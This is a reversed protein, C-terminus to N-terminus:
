EDAPRKFDLPSPITGPAIGAYSPLPSWNGDKQRYIYGLGARMVAANENEAMFDTVPIESAILEPKRADRNYPNHRLFEAILWALAQLSAPKTIVQPGPQAAYFGKGILKVAVPLTAIPPIPIERVDKAQMKTGTLAAGHEPVFVVVAKRGSREVESFFDKLEATM